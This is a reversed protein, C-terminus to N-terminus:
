MVKAFNAMACHFVVNNDGILTISIFSKLHSSVGEAISVELWLRWSSAVKAWACGIVAVTPPSEKTQTSRGHRAEGDGRYSSSVRQACKKKVIILYDSHPQM